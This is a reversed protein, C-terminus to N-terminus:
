WGAVMRRAQGVGEEIAALLRACDDLAQDLDRRAQFMAEGPQTAARVPAEPQRCVAGLSEMEQRLDALRGAILALSGGIEPAVEVALRRPPVSRWDDPASAMSGKLGDLTQSLRANKRILERQLNNIEQNSRALDRGLRELELADYEGVILLEGGKRFVQARLTRSLQLGDGVTLWGGFVLGEDAPELLEEFSPNVLYLHRPRDPLEGGLVEGMGRNLYLANGALDFIGLALAASDDRAGNLEATWRELVPVLANLPPYSM